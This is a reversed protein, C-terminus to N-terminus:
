AQQEGQAPENLRPDLGAPRRWGQHKARGHGSIVSFKPFSQGVESYGHVVCGRGLTVNPMITAFPGVIVYDELRIPGEITGQRDPHVTHSMTILEGPRDLRIPTNSVSYIHVRASIGVFDGIEVGGRGAIHSYPGVFSHDGMRIRGREDPVSMLVGRDIHCRSGIEIHKPNTFEVDQDIITDVGLRGLKTKWYCGRVFFGAINRPMGRALSYMGWSIVPIMCFLMILAQAITMCIRAFTSIIAWKGGRQIKEPQFACDQLAELVFDDSFLAWGPKPPAPRPPVYWMREIEDPDKSLPNFRIM